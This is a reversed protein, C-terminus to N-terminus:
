SAQQDHFWMNRSAHSGRARLTAIRQKQSAGGWTGLLEVQEALHISYEYCDTQVPCSACVQKAKIQLANDGKEPFFMNVDLGKCAAMNRWEESM